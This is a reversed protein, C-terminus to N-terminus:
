VNEGRLIALGVALALCGVLTVGLLLLAFLEGGSLPREGPELYASSSIVVPKRSPVPPNLRAGQLRSNGQAQDYRLRLAPDSLVRYAEQIHRFKEQAQELPFRTTDPHYDKSRDRHAQRIAHITADASLGLLGYYDSSTPPHSAGSPSSHSAGATM